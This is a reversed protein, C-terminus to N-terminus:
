EESFGEIEEIERNLHVGRRWIQKEKVKMNDDFIYWNGDMLGKVYKGKARIRGEENYYFVEGSLMGDVYQGKSKPRGDEFFQKWVGEKKGMVYHTEEAVKGNDFYLFSPGNRKGKKYSERSILNENADYFTWVSDKEGKTYRGEAALIRKGGFQKSYAVRTKGRFTNIAKLEGSDFYFRFEGVEIGHSFEGKYRVKGNEHNKKWVGHRKGKSDTQNVQSFLATPLNLILCFLITRM